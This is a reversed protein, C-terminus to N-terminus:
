GYMIEEDTMMAFRELDPSLIRSNGLQRAALRAAKAAEQKERSQKSLQEELQNIINAHQEQTRQPQGCYFYKVIIGGCCASIIALRVEHLNRAVIHFM